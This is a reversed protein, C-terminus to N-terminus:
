FPDGWSGIMALTSLSVLVPEEPWQFNGGFVEKAQASSLSGALINRAVRQESIIFQYFYDTLDLGSAFLSHGPQLVVDCLCSGAAMSSCWKGKPVELLNPPRADLILRDKVENKGVAFLGSVFRGRKQTSPIPKLRGTDALKCFLAIREATTANVKVMPVDGSFQDYDMANDIPRLYVEATPADFFKKFTASASNKLRQSPSRAWGTKGKEAGELVMISAVPCRLPCGVFM